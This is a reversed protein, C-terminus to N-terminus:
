TMGLITESWLLILNFDTVPFDKFLGLTNPFWSLGELYGM